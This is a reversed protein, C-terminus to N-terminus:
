LESKPRDPREMYVIPIFLTYLILIVSAIFSVPVTDIEKIPSGTAFAWILFGFTTFIVQSKKTVLSIRISYLPTIVLLLAIVIWLILNEHQSKIGTVLGYITVYAAIIESPILKVLKEKYNDAKKPSGGLTEIDKNTKIERTM